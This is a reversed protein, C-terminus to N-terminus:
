NFPINIKFLKKELITGLNQQKDASYEQMQFTRHFDQSNFLAKADSVVQCLILNAKLTKVEFSSIVLSSTSLHLCFSKNSLM